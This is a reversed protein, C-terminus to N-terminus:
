AFFARQCQECLGSLLWERRSRGKMSALDVKGDGVCPPRLWEILRLHKNRARQPVMIDGCAPAPSSMSVFEKLFEVRAQIDPRDCGTEEAWARAARFDGDAEMGSCRSTPEDVCGGSDVAVCELTVLRINRTKVAKIGCLQDDFIVGRREGLKSTIVGLKGNLHTAKQLGVARVCMGIRLTHTSAIDTTRKQKEADVAQARESLWKSYAGTSPGSAQLFDRLGFQWEADCGGDYLDENATFLTPFRVAEIRSDGNHLWNFLRRDLLGHLIAIGYMHNDALHLASLCVLASGLLNSRIDRLWPPENGNEQFCALVTTAISGEVDGEILLREVDASQQLFAFM